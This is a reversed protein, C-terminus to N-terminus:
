DAPTFEVSTLYGSIGEAVAKAITKRYEPDLLKKEDEANSLFGCEVLVSPAKPERLVFLDEPNAYRRPRGVAECISNMVCEALAKGRESNKMYFVMPGSVRSDKFKNMHISVVIDVEDINMIESRLRMDESKTEALASDDERTMIVYYGKANLEDSVLKAVELNLEAEVTGSPGSAGGDFGGHGADVVIVVADEPIDREFIVKPETSAAVAANTGRLGLWTMMIAAAGVLVTLCIDTLRTMDMGKRKSRRM